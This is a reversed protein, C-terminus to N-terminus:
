DSPAFPHWSLHVDDAEILWRGTERYEWWEIEHLLHGDDSLRFEDYRWDRHGLDGHHIDLRYRYVRPYLLEIHGDHYAGLLRVRISVTRKEHREGSSPESIEIAELWGDHPCRRDDSGFYWHATALAYASPPFRDRNAELYENYRRFAERVEDPGPGRQATLIFTM